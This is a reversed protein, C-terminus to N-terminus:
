TTLIGIVVLVAFVAMLVILAKNKGLAASLKASLNHIETEQARMAWAMLDGSSIVAELKDDTMLPLHRIRRETVKRMAEAVTTSAEVSVPDPTMVQAVKTARPDRGEAVVRYLADRESFIGQVRNDTGLVVVAGINRDKMKVAADYVTVDADVVHVEEHKADAVVRLTSNLNM